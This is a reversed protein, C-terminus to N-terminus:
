FTAQLGVVVNRGPLPSVDKLLSVHSRAKENLVNNVRAFVNLRAGVLRLPAEAGLNLINFERTSTENPATHTQRESRQWEVETQFSNAKYILALTERMPTVRPLSDGTDRNIGRLTDLKFEAELVGPVKAPIRQRLELEAGYFRAHAAGYNYIPLGSGPDTGGTPALVIYDAYDQLFGTVRGQTGDGEHRVSLEAAHSREKDLNTDGQEFVGTAIHPGNAFLEQYNPARETYSTNLVLAWKPVFEYHAGLALSGGTFSRETDSGAPLTETVRVASQDVRAGLSPRLVGSQKEEFIFFSYAENKTAPLFKEDGEASFDFYSGQLGFIGVYDGVPKHTAELRLEDGDNKFRTGTEGGEIEEHRYASYSNKMRLNDVFGEMGIQGALDFRQQRMDIHVFRETVTGYKSAYSSYSAGLFGKEFVYSSGVSGNWTRNFSNYVRGREEEETPPDNLRRQTSRAYGPVMFDEAGRASADLHYAWKSGIGGDVIAVGARGQDVSSYRGETRARFEAPMKEPIRNTVMNVVGGVASSGYLLAGPGRVIEIREVALPEMAVAHDASAGSADLVGLSNQLIRVREGDQGRIVPRSSNPGFYSSTVGAERSLTEGLTSQKKKQLRQGSLESVTPTIDFASKKQGTGYVTIDPVGVDTGQAHAFAASLSIVIALMKM